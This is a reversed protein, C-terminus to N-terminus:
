ADILMSQENKLVPLGRSPVAAHWMAISPLMGDMNLTLSSMCSADRLLMKLSPIRGGTIGHYRKFDLDITLDTIKAM